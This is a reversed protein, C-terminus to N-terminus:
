IKQMFHQIKEQRTVPVVEPIIPIAELKSKERNRM